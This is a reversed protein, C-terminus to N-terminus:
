GKQEQEEMCKKQQKQPSERDEGDLSIASATSSRSSSRSSGSRSRSRSAGPYLRRLVSSWTSQQKKRTASGATEKDPEATEPPVALIDEELDMIASHVEKRVRASKVESEHVLSRSLLVSRQEEARKALLAAAEDQLPCPTLCMHEAFLAIKEGCRGRSEWWLSSRITVLALTLFGIIAPLLSLFLLGSDKSSLRGTEERLLKVHQSIIRLDLSFLVTLVLILFWVHHTTIVLGPFQLYPHGQFTPWTWEQCIIICELLICLSAVAVPGGPWSTAFIPDLFVIKAPGQHLEVILFAMAIVSWGLLLLVWYLAMRVMYIDGEVLKKKRQRVMANLDEAFGSFTHHPLYINLSGQQYMLDFVFMFIYWDIMLTTLWFGRLATVADLGGLTPQILAWSLQGPWIRHLMFNYLKAGTYVGVVAGMTMAFYKGRECGKCAKAYFAGFSKRIFRKEAESQAGCSPLRLLKKCLLGHVVYHFFLCFIIAAGFACLAHTLGMFFASGNWCSAINNFVTFWLDFYADRYQADMRRDAMDCAYLINHLFLLLAICILRTQPGELVFRVHDSLRMESHMSPIEESAKRALSEREEEKKARAAKAKARTARETEKLFSVIEMGEKKNSFNEIQELAWMAPTYGFPDRLLTMESNLSVLLKIFDLREPWETSEMHVNVASHLLNRGHTDIRAINIDQGRHLMEFAMGPQVWLALMLATDGNLDEYSHVASGFRLCSEVFGPEGSMVALHTMTYGTRFDVVLDVLSRADDSATVACASNKKKSPIAKGSPMGEIADIIRGTNCCTNYKQLLSYFRQVDKKAIASALNNQFQRVTYRTPIKQGKAEGVSDDVPVSVTRQLSNAATEGTRRSRMQAQPVSVQPGM